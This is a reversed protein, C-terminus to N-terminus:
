SLLWPLCLCSSIVTFAFTILTIMLAPLVLADAYRFIQVIYLLSFLSSLGVTLVVEGILGCLMGLSQMRSGIDGSSYKKFFDSPLTLIRMMSAAEVAVDTKTQVRGILISKIVNAM